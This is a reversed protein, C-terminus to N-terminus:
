TKYGREQQPTQNTIAHIEIKLTHVIVAFIGAGITFMM